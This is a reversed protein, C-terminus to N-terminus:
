LEFTEATPGVNSNATIIEKIRPLIKTKLKAAYENAEYVSDFARRYPYPNCLYGGLKWELPHTETYKIQYELNRRQIPETPQELEAEYRTTDRPESELVIEDLRNLKIIAKEEESAELYLYVMHKEYTVPTTVARSWLFGKVIKEENVVEEEYKVEIRAKMAGEGIEYHFPKETKKARM